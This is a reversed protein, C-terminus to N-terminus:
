MEGVTTPEVGVNRLVEKRSVFGECRLCRVRNYLDDTWRSM